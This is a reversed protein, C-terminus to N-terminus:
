QSIGSQRHRNSISICAKEFKEDTRVLMSAISMDYINMAMLIGFRKEIRNRFSYTFYHPFKLLELPELKMVDVAYRFKEVVTEPKLLLVAPCMLTMSCLQEDVSKVTRSENANSSITSGSPTSGNSQMMESILRRWFELRKDLVLGLLEPARSITETVQRDSMGMSRFFDTRERLKATGHSFIQPFRKVMKKLIDFEIGMEHVLFFLQPEMKREVHLTLVQPIRKVIRKIDSQNMKLSKRFFEIVPSVLNDLDQSFLRPCKILMKKLDKDDIRLEKGFYESFTDLDQKYDMYRPAELLFKVLQAEDLKFREGRLKSVIEKAKSRADEDAALSRFIIPRASHLVKIARQSLLLEDRMFSWSQDLSTNTNNQALEKNFMLMARHFSDYKSQLGDSSSMSNSVSRHRISSNNNINGSKDDNNSSHYSRSLFPASSIANARYTLSNVDGMRKLRMRMRLVASAPDVNGNENCANSARLHSYSYLCSSQCFKQCHWWQQTSAMAVRSTLSTINKVLIMSARVHAMKRAGKGEGKGEGEGEGEGETRGCGTSSRTRTRARARWLWEDKDRM